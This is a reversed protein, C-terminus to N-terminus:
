SLVIFLDGVVVPRNLGHAPGSRTLVVCSPEQERRLMTGINLSVLYGILKGEANLEEFLVLGNKDIESVRFHRINTKAM